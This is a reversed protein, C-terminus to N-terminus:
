NNRQYLGDFAVQWTQGGDRSQQWLQRVQNADGNVVNWTIRETITVGARAGPHTGELTMKGDRFQGTLLLLTGSDDVWTQHWHKEAAAYTNFSTGNGGQAGQWNEQIACGNMIRVVRNTGALAGKIGTTFDFVQWDGVWFDFQRYEPATCAPSQQAVSNLSSGFTMVVGSVFLVRWNM